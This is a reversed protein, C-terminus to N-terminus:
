RPALRHRSLSSRGGTGRAAGIPSRRSRRRSGRSAARRRPLPSAAVERRGELPRQRDSTVALAKQELVAIREDRLRPGAVRRDVRGDRGIGDRGTRGRVADAGEARRLEGLAEDAARPVIRAPEPDM